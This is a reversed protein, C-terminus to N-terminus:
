NVKVVAFPRAAGIPPTFIAMQPEGTAPCTYQLRVKTPKSAGFVVSQGPEVVLRHTHPTGGRDCSVEIEFNGM